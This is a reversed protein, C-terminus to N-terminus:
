YQLQPPDLYMFWEFNLSELNQLERFTEPIECLNNDNIALHKMARCLGLTDPLRVINNESLNLDELCQLAGWGVSKSNTDADPLREM